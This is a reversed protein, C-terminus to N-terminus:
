DVLLISRAKQVYKFAENAIVAHEINKDPHTALVMKKYAAKLVEANADDPNSIGLVKM